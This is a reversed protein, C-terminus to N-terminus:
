LNKKKNTKPKHLPVQQNCYMSLSIGAYLLLRVAAVDGREVAYHLPTNGNKDKMSVYAGNEM